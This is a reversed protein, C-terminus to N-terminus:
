AGANDKNTAFSMWAYQWYIYAKQTYIRKKNNYKSGKNASMDIDQM